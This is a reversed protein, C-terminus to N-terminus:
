FRARMSAVVGAGVGILAVLLIPVEAGFPSITTSAFGNGDAKSWSLSGFMHKTLTSADPLMQMDFPIDESQPVFALLSSIMQYYGEFEAKWDTFSLSQIGEPLSAAFAAFEKNGRIDGKPDDDAREMRQFVRRIDSPSFGAVLYGNKFAFSPNLAELPNMGMGQMPDINIRFQFTKVGRKEAEDLDVMGDSMSTLAKLVKVIKQEDNVKILFALEPPTTISAMPMSWTVLSDGIAGFLDDRVSFGMAKEKEALVAMLQEAVKPDYAQLASVAADYVSMSEFTAASFNVADKPVWKLFGTDLVKNAGSLLGKRDPAPAVMYSTSVAKGDKYSSVGAISHISRLGLAEFARGLGDVDLWSLDSEHEVAIGLGQLAFDLLPDPRMFVEAEAGEVALHKVSNKYRTTAALVHTGKAMNEVTARVDDRLTGIMLGNGVMALNLGMALGPPNDKPVFSMLKVKGVELNEREFVGTQELMALGTELLAFWQPASDGFDLHLVVGINPMPGFDGMEIGLRTVAFAGGKVRLNLLQDPDVPLKGAAHMEKAKGILKTFELQVMEHADRVFNQVEEERWMKALPMARFENLSADLDPVSIALVTGEPLYPLV